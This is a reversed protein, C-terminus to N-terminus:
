GKQPNVGTNYHCLRLQMEWGYAVQQPKWGLKHLNSHLWNATGQLFLACKSVHIHSLSFFTQRLELLKSYYLHLHTDCRPVVAEWSCLQVHRDSCPPACDGSHIVTRSCTKASNLELKGSLQISLQERGIHLEPQLPPSLPPISDWASLGQGPRLCNGRQGGGQLSFCSALFVLFLSLDSASCLCADMGGDRWGEATRRRQTDDSRERVRGEKQKISERRREPCDRWGVQNGYWVGSTPSNMWVSTLTDAEWWPFLCQPEDEHQM